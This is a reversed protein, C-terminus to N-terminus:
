RPTVQGYREAVTLWATVQSEKGAVTLRAIEPDLRKRGVAILWAVVQGESVTM